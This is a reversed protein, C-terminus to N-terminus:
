TSCRIGFWYCLWSTRGRPVRDLEVLGAKDANRVIQTAKERNLELAQKSPEPNIDASNIEALVRVAWYRAQLDSDDLGAVLSKIASNGIKRLAAAASLRLDISNKINKLCGMLANISATDDIRSLASIASSRAGETRTFDELIKIQRDRVSSSTGIKQITFNSFEAEAGRTPDTSLVGLFVEMNELDKEMKRELIPTWISQDRSYSATLIENEKRIKFFVDNPLYQELKSGSNRANGSYFAAEIRQRELMYLRMIDNEVGIEGVGLTARQYNIDSRFKVKVTAEYDGSVNRFVRPETNQFADSNPAALIKFSNDSLVDYQNGELGKYWFHGANSTISQVTFDSFQASASKGSDTSLVSLFIETDQLNNTMRRQLIQTWSSKDNSYFATLVGNEKRIKFYASDSGYLKLNTPSKNINEPFFAAEIRQKELMSLRMIGYGTGVERVGLTARQYEIESRFKVKVVAEYDGSIRRVVKPENNRLVDTGPASTINFSNESLKERQNGRAGQQWSWGSFIGLMVDEGLASIYIPSQTKNTSDLVLSRIQSFILSIPRTPSELAKLFSSAYPSYRGEGDKATKGSETSFALLMNNAVISTAQGSNPTGTSWSRKSLPAFGSLGPSASNFRFTNKRCADIVIINASNKADGMAKMIRTLPISTNQVDSKSATKAGIPIIYNEKGVQLGHGAYYFLGIGGASLKQGFEDLAGEMAQKTGDSVLVVEFGLERLRATIATADNVPNKLSLDTGYSSNGVVLAIRREMQVPINQAFQINSLMKNAPLQQKSQDALVSASSPMVAVFPLLAAIAGVGMLRGFTWNKVAKIGANSASFVEFM